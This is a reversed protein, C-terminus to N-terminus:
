YLVKKGNVINIGKQLKSIRQGAINYIAANDANGNVNVNAIATADEDDFMFKYAKAGASPAIYAKNPKIDFNYKYFGPVGDIKGLVLNDGHEMTFYTGSLVNEGTDIDGVDAITATVSTTSTGRLLVPTGAPISKGNGLQNLHLWGNGSDTLTYACVDGEPLTVDFPLYTTGYTKDGVANLTLTISTAAEITWKTSNGYSNYGYVKGSNAYSQALMCYSEGVWFEVKGEVLKGTFYYPSDGLYMFQSNGNPRVYKGEMSMSYNNSADKKMKVINSPAIGDQVLIDSGNTGMYYKSEEHQILYYGDLPYKIYGTLYSLLTAYEEDSIKEDDNYTTIANSFMSAEDTTLQFYGDGPYDIYPKINAEVLPMYDDSYTVTYSNGANTVSKWYHEIEPFTPAASLYVTATGNNLITNDALSIESPAGSLIITYATMSSVDVEEFTWQTGGYTETTWTGLFYPNTLTNYTSSEGDVKNSSTTWAAGGLYFRGNKGYTSSFLDTKISTVISTAEATTAAYSTKGTANCFRLSNGYLDVLTITATNSAPTGIATVRFYSNNTSTGDNAMTPKTTDNKKSYAYLATGANEKLKYVKGVEPYKVTGKYTLLAAAASTDFNDSTTIAKIAAVFANKGATTPFGPKDLNSDVIQYTNLYYYKKIKLIAEADDFDGAEEISSANGGDSASEYNLVDPSHGTSVGFIKDNVKVIVPASDKYTGSTSAGFTVPSAAVEATFDSSLSLKTGDVYAFKDESVSYLYYKATEDYYIFAFQQKSDSALFSLGLEDTSNVVNAGAGVAWTGRNNRINYCKDSNLDSLSIAYGDKLTRTIKITCDDEGITGSYDYDYYAASVLSAPVDLSSNAEQKKIVSGVLTEGDSEYLEYTVDVTPVGEKMVSITIFPCGLKSGGNKTRITFYTSNTSLGTVTLYVFAGVYGYSGIEGSTTTGDAATLTHPYSGSHASAGISYGTIIYGTPAALTIQYDTNGAATSINFCNGYNSNVYTSEFSIGTAPATITVGALGSDDNTTFLTTGTLSGYTTPLHNFDAVTVDTAWVRSGCLALLALFLILKTKM